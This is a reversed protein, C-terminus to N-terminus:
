QVTGNIWIWRDGTSDIYEITMNYDASTKQMARKCSSCPPRQGSIELYKGPGLQASEMLFDLIKGETHGYLSQEPFTLRQGPELAFDVGSTESGSGNKGGRPGLLEWDAHHTSDYAPLGKAYDWAEEKTNFVIVVTQSTGDLQYIEQTVYGQPGELAYKGNYEVAVYTNHVWLSFGWHEDGVFYTHDEAVRMNYVSEIQGTSLIATVPTLSDDMGVILDGHELDRAPTWGKEDVYFPHELTTTVTQGGM